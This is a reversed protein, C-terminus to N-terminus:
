WAEAVPLEDTRDSAWREAAELAEEPTAFARVGHHEYVRLRYPTEPHLPDIWAECTHGSVEGLIAHIAKAFDSATM